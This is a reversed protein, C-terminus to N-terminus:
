EAMGIAGVVVEMGPGINGGTIQTNVGDTIGTTVVVPTPQGNKLVWVRDGKDATGNGARTRRHPPRPFMKRIFSKNREKEVAEGQGPPAPPSFRLAANPVLIADEVRNVTIDATATMGPRLLLSENDVQLVTEYTVVGGTNQAAYRVQIIRAPFTRDPYADVTFTAAQGEEILGVDAEDVDVHLEMRALDEALTFLVPAQLSAAVTQGADVDRSLVIGNIPSRIVAKDLDTEAYALVAAAQKVQARAATVDARSRAFAAEASELEYASPVKGGSLERARSLREFQTESDKLAARAQDVGARASELAAQYRTVDAELKHTDLRALMQGVKVHDNYDVAVTEIIGSLESGVDVQNTPELNGTASVTITLHDRIVTRTEYRLKSGTDRTHWVVLGAILIAALVSWIFVHLVLRGPGATRNLGLTQQIDADGSGSPPTAYNDSHHKRTM